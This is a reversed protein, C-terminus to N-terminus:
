FWGVGDRAGNEGQKRLWLGGGALGRGRRYGRGRGCGRGGGGWEMGLGRGGGERSAQTHPQEVERYFKSSASSIMSRSRSSCLTNTLSLRPRHLSTFSGVLVLRPLHGVM